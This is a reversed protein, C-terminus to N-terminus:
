FRSISGLPTHRRQVATVGSNPDRARRIEELRTRVEIRFLPSAHRPLLNNIGEFGAGVVDHEGRAAVGNRVVGMTGRRNGTGQGPHGAPPPLRSSSRSHHIRPHNEKGSGLRTLKGNANPFTRCSGFGLLSFLDIHISSNRRGEIPKEEVSKGSIELTRLESASSREPCSSAEPFSRPDEPHLAQHLPVELATRSGIQLPWSVPSPGQKIVEM